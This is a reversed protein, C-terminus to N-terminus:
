HTGTAQAFPAFQAQFYPFMSATALTDHTDSSESTPPSLNMLAKSAHFAKNVM